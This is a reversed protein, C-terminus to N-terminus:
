SPSGVFLGAPTWIEWAEYDQAAEVRLTLGRDFSVRLTEASCHAVLIEEGVLDSTDLDGSRGTLTADRLSFSLTAKEDGRSLRLTVDSEGTRDVVCFGAIPVELPLEETV